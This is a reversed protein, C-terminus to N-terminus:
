ISAGQTECESGGNEDGQRKFVINACFTLTIEAFNGPKLNFNFDQVAVMRVGDIKIAQKNFLGPLDTNPSLPLEVTNLRNNPKEM